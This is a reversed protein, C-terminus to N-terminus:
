ATFTSVFVGRPGAGPISPRCAVLRGVAARAGATAGLDFRIRVETGGCDRPVIAFEDSLKSILDLGLGLGPRCPRRRPGCGDDSVLIWLEGSVAAANVYVLGHEGRYAHVVANTIAESAALRIADVQAGTAGAGAAFEALHGRAVPVSDASADYTENLNGGCTQM